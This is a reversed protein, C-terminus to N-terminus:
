KSARRSPAAGIRQLLRDRLVKPMHGQACQGCLDRTLELTNFVARCRECIIKQKLPFPVGRDLADQKARVLDFFTQAAYLSPGARRSPLAHLVAMRLHLRTRHLRSKVTGEKLGLVKAVDGVSMGVIDKLVLPLRDRESLSVIAEQLAEVSEKRVQRSLSDISGDAIAAIRPEGIPSLVDLSAPRQPQGARPRQRRLCARVAITYLWTRAEGRGEFQHWNRLALLFVDQVLDEADERGRCLRLALSYLQHGYQEILRTVAVAASDSPRARPRSSSAM